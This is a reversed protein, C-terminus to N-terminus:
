SFGEYWCYVMFMFLLIRRLLSNFSSVGSDCSIFPAISFPADGQSDAKGILAILNASFLCSHMSAM